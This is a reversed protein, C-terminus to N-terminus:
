PWTSDTAAKPLLRGGHRPLNGAQLPNEVSGREERHGVALDGRRDVDREPDDGQVGEAERGLDQGERAREEEDDRERVGLARGRDGLGAAGRGKNAPREVVEGAEQGAPREEEVVQDHDRERRQEQRVVEAGRQLDARQLVM